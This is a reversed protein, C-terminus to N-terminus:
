DRLISLFNGAPDKFWAIDMGGEHNIEEADNGEYHEFVIGKEKLAAVEQAVDKVGFNLVTYTAPTHDDKQYVLIDHGKKLKITLLEQDEMSSLETKLGLTDQYFAQAARVDDVSFSSFTKSQDLM